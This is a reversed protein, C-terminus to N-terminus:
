EFDPRMVSIQQGDTAIIKTKKASRLANETFGLLIYHRAHLLRPEGSDKGNFAEPKERPRHVRIAPRHPSRVRGALM